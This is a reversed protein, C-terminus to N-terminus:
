KEDEDAEIAKVINLVKKMTSEMNGPKNGEGRTEFRSQRTTTVNRQLFEKVGKVAEDIFNKLM